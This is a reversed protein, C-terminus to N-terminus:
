GVQFPSAIKRLLAIVSMAGLASSKPNGPVAKSSIEITAKGFEGEIDLRHVNVSLSPDASVSVSVKSPDGAALATSVAVNINQPFAEIGENVTGKFVTMPGTLGGLDIGKIYPAGVLAAPPKATAIHVHFEGTSAAQVLDLAGVAGAPVYIRTGRSGALETLRRKFEPDAFAGSSLVILSAGAEVCLEAYEWVAERRAAEVVIAPKTDLLEGITGAARCGLEEALATARDPSPADFVGAVEYDGAVGRKVDRAIYSGLAGCGILGIRM